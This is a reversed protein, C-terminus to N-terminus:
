GKARKLAEVATIKGLEMASVNKLSQGFSGFPTRAGDVIYVETVQKGEM